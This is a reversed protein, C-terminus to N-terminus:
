ARDQSAADRLLGGGRAHSGSDRRQTPSDCLRVRSPEGDARWARQFWKEAPEYDEARAHLGAVRLLMGVAMSSKAGYAMRVNASREAFDIANQLDGMWEYCISIANLEFGLDPHDPPLKSRKDDLVETYYHIAEEYEGEARLARALSTSFQTSGAERQSMLERLIREAEDLEGAGVLIRALPDPHTGLLLTTRM